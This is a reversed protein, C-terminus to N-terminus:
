IEVDYATELNHRVKRLLRVLTEIEQQSIDKIENERMKARHPKASETRKKGEETIFVKIIRKNTEDKERRIFSKSELIDLMRTINPRDKGLINAIQTQYLGDTLSLIFLIGFQVSTIDNLGHRKFLKAGAVKYLSATLGIEMGLNIENYNANDM